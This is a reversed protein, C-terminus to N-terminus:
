NKKIDDLQQLIDNCSLDQQNNNTNRNHTYNQTNNQSYNQTNNQSYNQSYNQTNNRQKNPNIRKQNTTRKDPVNKTKRLNFIKYKPKENHLKVHDCNEFVKGQIERPFKFFGNKKCTRMYPMGHSDTLRFIGFQQTRNPSLVIAIAEDLMLQYPYHTKCDVSSLFSEYQPHTHIWGLTLLENSTQIEFIDEENLAIVSDHTGKQEPIIVATLHFEGGVLKGTLIGCTEVLLKMDEQAYALFHTLLQRNIHITTRKNSPVLTKPIPTKPIKQKQQEQQQKQSTQKKETKEQDTKEIKEVKEQNKDLEKEKKKENEKQKIKKQEERLNQLELEEQKVKQEFREILILKYRKTANEIPGVRKLQRQYQKKAKPLKFEPHKPLELIILNLFRFMLIYAKEYNQKEKESLIKQILTDCGSFYRLIGMRPDIPYNGKEILGRLYEKTKSDLNSM